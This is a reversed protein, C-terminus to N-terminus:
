LSPAACCAQEKYVRGDKMVFRVNQLITVDELPNGDVAILDARKGPEITGLDRSLGCLEAANVTAAVLADMPSMGAETMYVFELANTGHEGVGVDTGFAIRVGAGLARAFAGEILPGVESAKSRVALPFYGDEAAKAAVFKGAHITPVLFAGTHRFLGLCEEDVFTGHEISDVGARLAAKIGAAGHAHAAVKKNLLHATEVIAELEDAFFQQEVGAATNSLVGGTATLKIVDAGRKVQARVAQRCADPGDAIGQMAAPMEFLDERYGLTGDSHGGTPSISEGAELIRPGPVLGENIADRLAFAADGSSGVNRITTFGAMLTRQAYVTGKIAADADSETVVRLRVDRSYQGTIHTHCDILGPLVFRHSLDIVGITAGGARGLAEPQVYGDVVREIRGGAVIVSVRERPPRGPQDLLAGCHLISITEDQPPAAAGPGIVAAAGLVALVAERTM